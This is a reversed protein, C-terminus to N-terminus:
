SMIMLSIIQKLLDKLFLDKMINLYDEAKCEIKRGTEKM